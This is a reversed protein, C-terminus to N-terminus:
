TVVSHFTWRSGGVLSNLDGLQLPAISSHVTYLWTPPILVGNYGHRDCYMVEFWLRNRDGVAKAWRAVSTRSPNRNHQTIAIPRGVSARAEDIVSRSLRKATVHQAM